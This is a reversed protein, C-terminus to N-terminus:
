RADRRRNGALREAATRNTAALGSETLEIAEIWRLKEHEVARPIGRLVQCRCFHLRHLEGNKMFDHTLFAPRVAIEVGLEEAIERKLCHRIDEGPQRKGGPFEWEGGKARTRKALLYRGDRHICAAGVDVAKARRKVTEAATGRLGRKFFSCDDRLPCPECRPTRGSCFTAGINMLAHNLEPGGAKSLKFLKGAIVEPKASAGAFVRGLVRRMNTDFAPVPEGFAFTLVANATYPGVGPITRLEDYTRPVRGGFNNRMLKAAALLNRGRAYYGLGRWCPLVDTWRAAALSSLDPFRKLFRRYYDKVRAAQTQQLM